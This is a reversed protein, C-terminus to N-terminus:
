GRNAVRDFPCRLCQLHGCLDGTFPTLPKELRYLSTYPFGSLTQLHSVTALTAVLLNKRLPSLSDVPSPEVLTASSRTSAPSGPRTGSVAPNTDEHAQKKVHATNSENLTSTPSVPRSGSHSMAPNHDSKTSKNM